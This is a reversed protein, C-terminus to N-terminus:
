GRNHIISTDIQKSTAERIYEESILQRGDWRGKNLCVYALKAMDQLTCIVGSGGWSTGEPTQICWANESFGIPDLLRPRMYELFPVGSIREVITNLVVTASTDYSFITGPPHSPEKQFFTAAWDSDDRTYSNASNPTSMI